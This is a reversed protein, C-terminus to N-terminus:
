SSPPDLPLDLDALMRMDAALDRGRTTLYNGVMCSDAGAYFMWSQLDRLCSERGGAIKIQREPLVFRFMAVTQLAELPALPPNHEFPTGPIPNLFNLPVSEVPLERLTLALEVRDALSEGLGIIGGCCVRMGAAHAAKVTAIREDYGHTSVVQPFFRRSTELNHNYNRVGAAALRRAQEATLTGLSAGCATHGM